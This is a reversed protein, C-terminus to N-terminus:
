ETFSIDISGMSCEVSIDCAAKNDIKKERALGGASYGGIEVSGMASDLNYNYDKESGTLKMEISGMSCALDAKETIQGDMILSGMGVEADLRGTEMGEISIEGMGVEIDLKGARLQGSGLIQGAGVEFDAKDASFNEFELVGAGVEVDMEAFQFDEPVYFDIECVHPTGLATRCLAKLYLTEEQVYSQFKGANKVEVHFDGDPSDKVTIHCAGAEIQLSDIEAASFSRQVNGTLIEFGSSFTMNNAMDEEIDYRAGSDWRDLSDLVAEGVSFGWGGSNLHVRGGTVSDVIRAMSAPGQFAGATMAIVLGAGILVLATIACIKMFKKM